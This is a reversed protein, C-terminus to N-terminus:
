CKCSRRMKEHKSYNGGSIHQRSANSHWLAKENSTNRSAPELVEHSIWRRQVLELAAEQCFSLVFVSDSCTMTLIRSVHKTNPNTGRLTCSARALCSAFSCSKDRLLRYTDHFRISASAEVSQGPALANVTRICESVTLVDSIQGRWSWHLAHAGGEPRPECDALNSRHCNHPRNDGNPLSV